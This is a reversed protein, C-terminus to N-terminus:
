EEDVSSAGSTEVSGLTPNGLYGVHSAGSAEVDLTGSANIVATSAGSVVVAADTVPFDALEATSAGSADVTLDQASGELSATSAGALTLDVGQAQLAGDIKSAGSAALTVDGEVSFDVLTAQSAGTLELSALTAVTIDAELTVNGFGFGLEPDLGISLTNGVQEVRLHPQFNDDIRIVVSPTDGQTITVDFAQSVVLSDFDSVDQDISVVNGSGRLGSFSPISVSCAMTALVVAVAALRAPNSM